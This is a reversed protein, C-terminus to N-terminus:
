ATGKTKKYKAYIIFLIIVASLTAIGGFEFQKGEHHHNVRMLLGILTCVISLCLIGSYIRTQNPSLLANPRPPVAMLGIFGTICVALSINLLPLGVDQKHWILFMLAMMGVFASAILMNNLVKQLGSVKTSNTRAKNRIAVLRIIFYIFGLTIFVSFVGEKPLHNVKLTIVFGLSIWLLIYVLRFATKINM